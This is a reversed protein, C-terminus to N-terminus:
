YELEVGIAIRITLMCTLLMLEVMVETVNPITRPELGLLVDVEYIPIGIPPHAKGIM